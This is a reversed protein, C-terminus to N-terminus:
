FLQMLHPVEIFVIIVCIHDGRDILTQM